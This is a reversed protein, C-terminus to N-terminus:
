ETLRGHAVVSAGYGGDLIGFFVDKDFITSGVVYTFSDPFTLLYSLNTGDYHAIGGKMSAFADNTTRGGFITNFLPDDFSFLKTFVGRPVSTGNALVFNRENYGCAGQPLFFIIHGNIDSFTISPADTPVSFLSTLMGGAFRYVAMGIDQGSDNSLYSLVYAAGDENRVSIFQSGFNAAFAEKWTAGDYHLIFGRQKTPDWDIMELGVAYVDNFATGSIKQITVNSKNGGQGGYVFVTRWGTGDFHKIIGVNGGVWVNNAATGWITNVDCDPFRPEMRKWSVGDYHFM